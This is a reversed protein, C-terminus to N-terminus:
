HGGDDFKEKLEEIRDAAGSIRYIGEDHLLQLFLSVELDLGHQEVFKIANCVVSPVGDIVQHNARPIIESLAVGFVKKDALLILM